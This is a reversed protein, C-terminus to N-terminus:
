RELSQLRAGIRYKLQFNHSGSFFDSEVGKRKNQLLIKDFYEVVGKVPVYNLNQVPAEKLGSEMHGHSLVMPKNV